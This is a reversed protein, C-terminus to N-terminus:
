QPLRIVARLGGSPRNALFLTGGHAHVITRAVSLGLGTGGTESNRSADLRFFPEFVRELDAAPIGPGDDEILIRRRDHEVVGGGAAGSVNGCQRDREALHELAGPRDQGTRAVAVRRAVSTQQTVVGLVLDVIQISALRQVDQGSCKEVTQRQRKLGLPQARVALGLM